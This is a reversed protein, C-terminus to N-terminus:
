SKLSYFAIESLYRQMYYTKNYKWIYLQYRLITDESGKIKKANPSLNIYVKFIITSTVQM